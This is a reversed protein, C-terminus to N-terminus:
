LREAQRTLRYHAGATAVIILSLYTLGSMCSQLINAHMHWVLYTGSALTAVTLGYTIRLKTHSPSILGYTAQVLGLLAIIVHTLILM